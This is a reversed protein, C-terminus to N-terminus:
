PRAVARKLGGDLAAAVDSLQPEWRVRKLGLSRITAIQDASVIKFRSLPFPHAMWGGDLHVFMGVRLAQVDILEHPTTASM